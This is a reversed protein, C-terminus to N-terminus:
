IAINNPLNISFVLEKRCTEVCFRALDRTFTSFRPFSM